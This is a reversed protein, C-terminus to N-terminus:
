KVQRVMTVLSKLRTKWEIAETTLNCDEECAIEEWCATFTQRFAFDAEQQNEEFGIINYEKSEYVWIKGNWTIKVPMEQAFVFENNEYILSTLRVTEQAPNPLPSEAIPIVLEREATATTM